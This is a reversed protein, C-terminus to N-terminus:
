LTNSYSCEGLQHICIGLNPIYKFVLVNLVISLYKASFMSYLVACLRFALPDMGNVKINMLRNTHETSLQLYGPRFLLGAISYLLFTRYKM